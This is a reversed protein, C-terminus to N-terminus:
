GMAGPRFAVCRIDAPRSQVDIVCDVLGAEELWAALEAPDINAYHEGDHLGKGDIASHPARGPGAATMVFMGGPQLMKFVQLVTDRARPSHELMETSVVCDVPADPLYDAADCVVDAGDGPAIDVGIYTADGFLHRPNGNVDRSGLEAVTGFQRGAVHEAVWRMAEDHM